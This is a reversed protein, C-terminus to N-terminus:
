PAGFPRALCESGPISRMGTRIEPFSAEQAHPRLTAYFFM